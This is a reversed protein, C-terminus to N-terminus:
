IYFHCWFTNKQFGTGLGEFETWQSLFSEYSLDFIRIRGYNMTVPLFVIVLM